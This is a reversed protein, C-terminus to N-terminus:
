FPTMDGSSAMGHQHVADSISMYGYPREPQRFHAPTSDDDVLRWGRAQWYAALSAVQNFMYDELTCWESEM